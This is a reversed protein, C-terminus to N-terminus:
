KIVGKKRAWEEAVKYLPKRPTFLPNSKIEDVTGQSVVGKEVAKKVIKSGLSERPKFLWEKTKALEDPTYHSIGTGIEIGRKIKEVLPKRKKIQTLVDQGVQGVTPIKNGARIVM